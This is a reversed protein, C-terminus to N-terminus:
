DFDMDDIAMSKPLADLDIKSAADIGALLAKQNLEKFKAPVRALVAKEISELSIKSTLKAVAGLAFLDM